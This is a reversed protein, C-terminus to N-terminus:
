FSTNTLHHRNSTERLNSKSLTFFRATSHELILQNIAHCTPSIVPRNSFSRIMPDSVIYTQYKGDCVFVTGYFIHLINKRRGKYHSSYWLLFLVKLSQCYFMVKVQSQSGERYIKTRKKNLSLIVVEAKM